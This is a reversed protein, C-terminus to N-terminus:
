GRPANVSHCTMLGAQIVTKQMLCRRKTLSLAMQSSPSRMSTEEKPDPHHNQRRLLPLTPPTETPLAEVSLTAEGGYPTPMRRGELRWQLWLQEQEQEQQWQSLLMPHHLMHGARRSHSRGMLM